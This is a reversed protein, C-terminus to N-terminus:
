EETVTAESKAPDALDVTVNVVLRKSPRLTVPVLKSGAKPPRVALQPEGAHSRCRSSGM